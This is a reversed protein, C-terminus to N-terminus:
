FFFIDINAGYIYTIGNSRPALKIKLKYSWFYVDNSCHVESKKIAKIGEVIYIQPMSIPETM